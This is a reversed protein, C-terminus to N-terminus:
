RSIRVNRMTFHAKIENSIIEKAASRTSEEILADNGEIIQKIENPDDVKHGEAIGGNDSIWDFCEMIQIMDHTQNAIDEWVNKSIEM